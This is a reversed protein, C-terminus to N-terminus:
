VFIVNPNRLRSRARASATTGRAIEARHEARITQRFLNVIEDYAVGFRGAPIGSWETLIEPPIKVGGEAWLLFTRLPMGHRKRTLFLNKNLVIDATVNRPLKTDQDHFVVNYGGYQCLLNFLEDNILSMSEWDSLVRGCTVVPLVDPTYVDRILAKALNAARLTYEESYAEYYEVVGYLQCFMVKSVPAAFYVYPQLVFSKARKSWKKRFHYDGCRKKAKRKERMQSIKHFFKGIRKLIGKAKEEKM